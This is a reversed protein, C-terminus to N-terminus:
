SNEKKCCDIYNKLEAETRIVADEFSKTVDHQCPNFPHVKDYFHKTLALGIKADVVDSILKQLM